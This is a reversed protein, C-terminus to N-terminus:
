TLPIDATLDHTPAWSRYQLGTLVIEAQMPHTIVRDMRTRQLPMM